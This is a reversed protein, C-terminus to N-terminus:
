DLNSDDTEQSRRGLGNIFESWTFGEKGGKRPTVPIPRVGQEKWFETLSGEVYSERLEGAMATATSKDSM